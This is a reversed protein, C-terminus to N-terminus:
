IEPICNRTCAPKGADNSLICMSRNGRHTELTVVGLSGYGLAGRLWEHLYIYQVGRYVLM